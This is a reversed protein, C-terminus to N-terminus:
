RSRSLHRVSATRCSLFIRPLVIISCQHMNRMGINNSPRLSCQMPRCMLRDVRDFPRGVSPVFTQPTDAIALAMKKRAWLQGVRESFGTGGRDTPEEELIELDAATWGISQCPLSLFWRNLTPNPWDAHQQTYSTSQFDVSSFSMRAIFLPEVCVTLLSTPPPPLCNLRRCCRAWGALSSGVVPEVAYTYQLSRSTATNCYTRLVYLGERATLGM